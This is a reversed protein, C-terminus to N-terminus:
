RGRAVRPRPTNQQKVAAQQELVKSLRDGEKMANEIYTQAAEGSLRALMPSYQLVKPADPGAHMAIAVDLHQGTPATGNQSQIHQAISDYQAKYHQESNLNIPDTRQRSHPSTQSQQEVAKGEIPLVGWQEVQAILHRVEIHVPPPPPKVKFGRKILWEDINGRSIRCGVQEFLVPKSTMYFRAECQARTMAAFITERSLEEKNALSVLVRDCKLDQTANITQVLAYDLYCLQELPIYQRQGDDFRLQVQNAEVAIVEIEKGKVRGLKHNNNTWVLRDGRAIPIEKHQYVQGLLEKDLAAFNVTRLNKGHQFTISNGAQEVVQYPQSIRLGHRNIHPVLIDGIEYHQAQQMQEKSLGRDQFVKLTYDRDGLLGEAKLRIRLQHIIAEQDKQTETIIRTGNRQSSNMMWQQAIAGIRDEFTPHEHVWGKEDLCRLSEAELGHYFLGVTRELTPDNQPKDLYTVNMGAELLAKVPHGVTSFLEPHILFLVQAKNQSSHHMLKYIQQASLDEANDVVWLAQHPTSLISKGLCDSVTMNRLGSVAKLNTATVADSAIGTVTINDRLGNAQIFEVLEQIAKTKATDSESVWALVRDGSSPHINQGETFTKLPIHTHKITSLEAIKSAITARLQDNGQQLKNLQHLKEGLLNLEEHLGSLPNILDRQARSRYIHEVIKILSPDPRTKPIPRRVIISRKERTRDSSSCGSRYFPGGRRASRRNGTVKFGRGQGTSRSYPRSIHRSASSYQSVTGQRPDVTPQYSHKTRSTTNRINRNATNSLSVNADGKPITQTRYHTAVPRKAAITGHDNTGGENLASIPTMSNKGQLMLAITIKERELSWQTAFLNDVQLLLPHNVIAQDIAEISHGTPNITILKEMMELPFKSRWEECYAIADNVLADLDKRDIIPTTNAVPHVISLHAAKMQWYNHLKDRDLGREKAKRTAFLAFVRNETTDPLGMAALKDLIQHHRQSFEDIQHRSYGALEFFGDARVEIRYGLEQVLRALENRYIQGLLIKHEYFKENAFSQWIGAVNQVLNMWFGHSHLQPDLERSTDHHFVAVIPKYAKVRDHKRWTFLCRDCMIQLTNTVAKRHAIALRYDGGLFCALSVSKPASFTGDIGAIASGKRADRRLQITGLPNYGRCLNEFIQFDINGTLNFEAAGDGWWLSNNIADSQQQYNDKTYYNIAGKPTMKGYSLM